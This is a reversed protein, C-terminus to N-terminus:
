PSLSEGATEKIEILRERAKAILGILIATTSLTLNFVLKLGPEGSLFIHLLIALKGYLLGGCIMSNSFVMPKISAIRTNRVLNMARVWKRIDGWIIM